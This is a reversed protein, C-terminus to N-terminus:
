PTLTRRATLVYASLQGRETAGLKARASMTALIDPWEDADHRGIPQPLHCAACQTTYIRRGAELDAVGARGQAAAALAPTVPPPPTMMGCAALVACTAAALICFRATM